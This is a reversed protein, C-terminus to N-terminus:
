PKQRKYVDQGDARGFQQGGALGVVEEDQGRRGVGFADGQALGVAPAHRGVGHQSGDFPRAAFGGVYRQQQVEAVRHIAGRGLGRRDRICM